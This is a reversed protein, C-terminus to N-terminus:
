FLNLNEVSKIYYLVIDWIKTALYNLSNLRYSSANVHTRIFDTQSRLNYHLNRTKFINCMIRNPLNSKVKFLEIAFSQINKHHIFLSKDKKLLEEFSSTNDKCVIRLAREHVHNIGSSAKRSYFTWTLPCYRFQSEEFAKLRIRKKWFEHM